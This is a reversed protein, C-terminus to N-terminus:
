PKAPGQRVGQSSRWIDCLQEVWFSVFPFGFVSSPPCVCNSDLVFLTSFVISLIHYVDSVSLVLQRKAEFSNKLFLRYLMWSQLFYDKEKLATEFVEKQWEQGILADVLKSELHLFRFIRCDDLFPPISSCFVKSNDRFSLFEKWNKVVDEGKAGASFITVGELPKRTELFSNRIDFYAKM